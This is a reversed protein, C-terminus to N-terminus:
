GVQFVQGSTTGSLIKLAHSAVVSTSVLGPFSNPALANVKIGYQGYEHAMHMTLMNAAAKSAAYFGQGSGKFVKAGALSSVLLVSARQAAVPVNKWKRHFLISCILAPAIVHLEFQRRADEALVVADTTPGLFRGDGAANVVYDISPVLSALSHMVDTTQQQSTLDCTLTRVLGVRREGSTADFSVTGEERKLTSNRHVLAIVDLQDGVLDIIATGLQGAAGTL